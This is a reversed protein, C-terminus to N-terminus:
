LLTLGTYRQLSCNHGSVDSLGCKLQKAFSAGLKQASANNTLQPLAISEVIASKFLSPAESLTAITYVDTAGASQGFALVKEQMASGYNLESSQFLYFFDCVPDGGFASISKQVWEFGLILDQIGQNGYIGASNLAM